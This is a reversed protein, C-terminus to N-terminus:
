GGNSTRPFRATSRRTVAASLSSGTIVKRSDTAWARDYNEDLYCGFQDYDVRGAYNPIDMAWYVATSDHKVYLIASGAPKAPGEMGLVDSVDHWAADAWEGTQIDGDLTVAVTKFPATLTDQMLFSFTTQRFTDNAPNADGPLSTFM